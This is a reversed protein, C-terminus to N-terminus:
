LQYKAVLESTSHYIQYTVTRLVGETKM